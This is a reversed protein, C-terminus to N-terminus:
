SAAVPMGCHRRRPDADHDALPRCRSYRRGRDILASELMVAYNDLDDLTPMPDDRLILGACM